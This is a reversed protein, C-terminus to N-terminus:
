GPGRPAQSTLYLVLSQLEHPTINSSRMWQSGVIHCLGHTGKKKKKRDMAEPGSRGSFVISDDCLIIIIIISIIFVIVMIFVIFVIVM